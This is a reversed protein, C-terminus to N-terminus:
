KWALWERRISLIWDDVLSVKNIGPIGLENQFKSTISIGASWMALQKYDKLNQMLRDVCEAKFANWFLNLDYGEGDKKLCLKSAIKFSNAGSVEAINDVVLKVYNYFELLNNKMLDNIEGPNSCVRLIIKLDEETVAYTSQAYYTLEDKSYPTMLLTVSRSTITSLINDKNCATLIWYTNNPPEELVKLLSNKAAVAMGDIDPVIFVAPEQLSHAITILDRMSGVSVDAPLIIKKSLKNAIYNALTKKGSGYPGIILAFRPFDNREITEDIWEQHFDQGIM